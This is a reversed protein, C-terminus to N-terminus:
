RPPDPPSSGTRSVREAAPRPALALALAAGAGTLGPGVLVPFGGEAPEGARWTAGIAQLQPVTALGSLVLAVLLAVASLARSRRPAAQALAAASAAPLLLALGGVLTGAVLGRDTSPQPCPESVCVLVEDPSLALGLARLVLGLGHLACAAGVVQLGAVDPGNAMEHM